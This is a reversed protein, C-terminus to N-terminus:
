HLESFYLFAAREADQGIRVALHVDKTQAFDYYAELRREESVYASLIACARDHEEEPVRKIDRIALKLREKLNRENAMQKARKFELSYNRPGFCIWFDARGNAEAKKRPGRRKLIQYENLSLLKLEGAAAVFAGVVAQEHFEFPTLSYEELFRVHLSAVAELLPWFDRYLEKRKDAKLLEIM